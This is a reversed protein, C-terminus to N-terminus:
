DPSMQRLGSGIASNSRSAKHRDSAIPVIPRGGQSAPTKYCPRRTRPNRRLSLIVSPPTWAGISGLWGVAGSSNRSDQLVSAEDTSRGIELRRTATRAPLGSWNVGTRDQEGRTTHNRLYLNGRSARRGHLQLVHFGGSM